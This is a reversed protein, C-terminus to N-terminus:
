WSETATVSMSNARGILFQVVAWRWSQDGNAPRSLDRGPDDPAVGPEDRLRPVAWPSLNGSMASDAPYVKVARGCTSWYFPTPLEMWCRWWTSLHNQVVDRIAGTQDFFRGRGAIGFAEAM